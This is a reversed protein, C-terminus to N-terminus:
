ASQPLPGRSPALERVIKEYAAQWAQSREKSMAFWAATKRTRPRYRLRAVGIVAVNTMHAPVPLLHLSKAGSWDRQGSTLCSMAAARAAVAVSLEWPECAAADIPYAHLIEAEQGTSEFVHPIFEMLGCTRLGSVADWFDKWGLDQRNEDMQGTMFTQSLPGPFAKTTTDASAFGWITSAGRQGVRILKHEQWLSARTVGGDDPLNHNDYLTIFLKLRRVDQMQRLLALPATEDAAGDVLTNPLWVHQPEAPSPNTKSVRGDGDDTLYGRALLRCLDRDGRHQPSIQVSRAPWLDLLKLETDSLRMSNLEHAPVISYVPRTIAGERTLMGAELLGNIALKAKSRSMGTYREIADVSWLSKSRSGAGRAITFYAVAPNLGLGCAASFSRRDVVFFEGAHREQDDAPTGGFDDNSTM